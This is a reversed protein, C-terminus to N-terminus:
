RGHDLQGGQLFQKMRFRTLNAGNIDMDHAQSVAFGPDYNTDFVSLAFRKM